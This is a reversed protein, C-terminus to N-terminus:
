MTSLIKAKLAQYETETILGQDWMAKAKAMRQVPDEAPEAPTPVAPGASFPMSGLFVGGSRARNEEMERVRRRERWEQEFQQAIGYLRKAQGKELNGVRQAQGSTNEVTIETSLMGQNMKVSVVDRWQFDVFSIRGLVGPKYLIIRNSTVVVADKKVTIATPNQLVIYIIEENPTLIAAVEAAIKQLALNEQQPDTYRIPIDAQPIAPASGSAPSASGRPPASPDSPRGAAAGTAQGCKGCWAAGPALATGCQSCVQSTDM